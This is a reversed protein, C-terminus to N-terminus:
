HNWINITGVVHPKDFDFRVWAPSLPAGEAARSAPPNEVTHWMTQASGANAHLLGDMGSASNVLNQPTQPPSFQSSATTKITEGPIEEEIRMMGTSPAGAQAASRSTVFGLAAAMVILLLAPLKQNM